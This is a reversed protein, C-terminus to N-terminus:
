TTKPTYFSTVGRVGGGVRKIRFDILEPLQLPREDRKNVIVRTSSHIPQAYFGFRGDWIKVDDMKIQDNQMAAAIEKADPLFRSKEDTYADIELVAMGGLKLIRHAEKVAKLKDPTYVLSKYAFVFDFESDQYPLSEVDGNRLRLGNGFGFYSTFLDKLNGYFILDIGYPVIGFREQMFRLTNGRGCGLELVTAGNKLTEELDVGDFFCEFEKNRLTRTRPTDTVAIAKHLQEIREVLLVNKM